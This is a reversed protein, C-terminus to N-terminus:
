QLPDVLPFLQLTLPICAVDAEEGPEHVGVVFLPSAQYLIIGCVIYLTALVKNCAPVCVYTFVLNLM